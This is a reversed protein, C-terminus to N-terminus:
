DFMTNSELIRFRDINPWTNESPRPLDLWTLLTSLDSDVESLYVGSLTVTKHSSM